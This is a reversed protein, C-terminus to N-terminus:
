VITVLKDPTIKVLNGNIIVDIEHEGELELLTETKNVIVKIIQGRFNVKFSYSRWERPISPNFSLKNNRVRMGGFGEVV